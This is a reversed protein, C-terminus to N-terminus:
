PTRGSRRTRRRRQPWQYPMNHPFYSMPPQIVVHTNCIVTGVINVGGFCNKM